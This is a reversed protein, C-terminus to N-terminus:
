YPSLCLNDTCFIIDMTKRGNGNDMGLVKDVGAIRDKSCEVSGTLSGNGKINETQFTNVSVSAQM